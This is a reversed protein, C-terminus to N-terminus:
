YALIINFFFIKKINVEHLRYFHVQKYLLACNPFFESCTNLGLFFPDSVPVWAKLAGLDVFCFYHVTEDKLKIVNPRSCGWPNWHNLRDGSRYSINWRLLIPIPANFSVYRGWKAVFRPDYHDSWVNCVTPKPNILLRRSIASAKISIDHEVLQSFKSKKLTDTFYTHNYRHAKLKTTTFKPLFPLTVRHLTKAQTPLLIKSSILPTPFYIFQHGTCLNFRRCCCVGFTETCGFVRGVALEATFVEFSDFDSM